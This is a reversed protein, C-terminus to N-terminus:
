TPVCEMRFYMGVDACMSFGLREYLRIANVNEKLVHLIVPKGSEAGEALLEKFLTSGIGAGRYEPLLALDIMFIEEDTRNLMLRGAQEGDAIIIYSDAQPFNATYARHQINFQMKLFLDQQAADWGLASLEEERTSAYLRYLFAEDETTFNRLTVHM